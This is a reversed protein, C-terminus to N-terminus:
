KSLGFPTAILYLDNKRRATLGETEITDLNNPNVGNPVKWDFHHLLQSLPHAINVLGFLMGPCMRRGAGFPLFEFHNGKFDITSNEFREPIFSESNHWYKPDRGISWANVLVKTKVPITYGDIKTEERCERPVLLPAPPHLRLTEKIVFQLYNLEELDIDNFTKKGNLRERVELQAKEMVRPNKILELFAWILTTSTTETGALFMDLIVAKINQNTIPPGFEESEMVRLLADVFDENGSEGNFKKGKARNDRHDNIIKELIEDVKSHAKSLKFKMGSINHLWKQSPFLDTLDFGGILSYIDKVLIIFKNRDHIIKGSVSRCTVTNTFWFIKNSLNTLSDPTNSRFSSILNSIEEQRISTFSKVMKTSLLELACVKRMNRWYDGYSSFGIDTCDYFIISASMIKPRDVFHLDQTKMIEKAMESSSVVITSINGLRLHMIPGYKKSLNRLSRHPLDSMLQHLNGIFPLKWPGPPLTKNPSKSKKWKQSVLFFSSLFLVLSIFIFYPLPQYEMKSPFSFM